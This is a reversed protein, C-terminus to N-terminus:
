ALFDTSGKVYAKEEESFIPLVDKRIEKLLPPYDGTGLPDTFWRSTCVMYRDAAAVDTADARPHTFSVDCPLLILVRRLAL